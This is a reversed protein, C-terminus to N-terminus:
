ILLFPIKALCFEVEQPFFLFIHNSRLRKPIWPLINQNSFTVLQEGCWYKVHILNNGAFPEQELMARVSLTEMQWGCKSSVM